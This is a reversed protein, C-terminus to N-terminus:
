VPALHLSHGRSPLIQLCLLSFSTLSANNYNKNLYITWSEKRESIHRRMSTCVLWCGASTRKPLARTVDTWQKHNEVPSVLCPYWILWNQTSINTWWKRAVGKDSDIVSGERECVLRFYRGRTTATQRQPVCIEM